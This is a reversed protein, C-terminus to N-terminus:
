YIEIVPLLNRGWLRDDPWYKCFFFLYKQVLFVLIKLNRQLYQGSSPKKLGFSTALLLIIIIFYVCPQTLRLVLSIPLCWIETCCVAQMRMVFTLPPLSVPLIYLRCSSVHGFIGNCFPFIRSVLYCKSPQSLSRYIVVNGDRWAIFIAASKNVNCRCFGSFLSVLVYFM